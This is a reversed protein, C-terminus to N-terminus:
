QAECFVAYSHKITSALFGAVVPIEEGM